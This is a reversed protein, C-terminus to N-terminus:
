QVDVLALADLGRQKVFEYPLYYYGQDGSCKGWSNKAIFYGGGSGYPVITGGGTNTWIKSNDFHGVINIAHSGLSKGQPDPVIGAKAGQNFSKSDAALFSQPVDFGLVVPFGFDVADKIMTVSDSEEGPTWLPIHSRTRISSSTNVSGDYACKLQNNADFGCLYDAQHAAESCHIGSYGDCSNAFGGGALEIRNLSPNYVWDKEFPFLYKTSVMQQVAPGAYSGDSLSDPQWEQKIKDYLAQESLNTWLQHREAHLEEVAATIAFATCSGRTGQSRICTETGKLPYSLMKFLGLTPGACLETEQSDGETASYGLEGACTAPKTKQLADTLIPLSHNAAIVDSALVLKHIMGRLAPVDARQADEKSVLGYQAAVSAGLMTMMAYYATYVASRDQSSRLSAAIAHTRTNAGMTVFSTPKGAGPPGMVRITGDPLPEAGRALEAPGYHEVLDQHDALFADILAQDSLLSLREAAAHAADVDPGAPTATGDSSLGHVAGAGEDAHPLEGQAHEGNTGGSCAAVVCVIFPSLVTLRTLKM